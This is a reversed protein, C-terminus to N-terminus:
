LKIQNSYVTKSHDRMAKIGQIIIITITIIFAYRQM